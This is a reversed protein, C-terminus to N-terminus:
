FKLYNSDCLVCKNNYSEKREKLINQVMWITKHILIEDRKIAQTTHCQISVSSNTQKNKVEIPTGWIIETQLEKSVAAISIRTIKQSCTKKKEKTYVLLTLAQDAEITKM